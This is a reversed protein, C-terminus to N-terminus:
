TCLTLSNIRFPYSMMQMVYYGYWYGVVMSCNFSFSLLLLFFDFWLILLKVTIVFFQLKVHRRWMMLFYHTYLNSHFYALHSLDNTLGIIIRKKLLIDNCIYIYIYVCGNESCFLSKRFCGQLSRTNWVLLGGKSCVLDNYMYSKRASWILNGVLSEMSSLM